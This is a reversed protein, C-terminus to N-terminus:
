LKRWAQNHIVLKVPILYSFYSYQFRHAKM